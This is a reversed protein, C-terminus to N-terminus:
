AYTKLIVEISNSRTENATAHSANSKSLNDSWSQSNKSSYAFTMFGIASAIVYKSPSTRAKPSYKGTSNLVHCFNLSKYRSSSSLNRVGKSTATRSPNLLRNACRMCSPLTCASVSELAIGSKRAMSVLGSNLILLQFIVQDVIHDPIPARQFDEPNLLDSDQPLALPVVDDNIDQLLENSPCWMAILDDLNM